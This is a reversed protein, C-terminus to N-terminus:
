HSISLRYVEIGVSGPKSAISYQITLFCFRIGSQKLLSNIRSDNSNM